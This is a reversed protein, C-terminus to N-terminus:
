KDAPDQPTTEDDNKHIIVRARTKGPRGPSKAKANAKVKVEAKSKPAVQEANKKKQLNKDNLSTPVLSSFALGNTRSTPILM